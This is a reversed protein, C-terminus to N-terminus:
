RVSRNHLSRRERKGLDEIEEATHELDAESVRGSRLLEPNHRTWEAFNQNYLEATWISRNDENRPRAAACYFLPKVM